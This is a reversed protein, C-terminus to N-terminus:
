RCSSKGFPNIILFFLMKATALISNKRMAVGKCRLRRQLFLHEGMLCNTSIATISVADSFEGM